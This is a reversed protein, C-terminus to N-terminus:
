SRSPAPMAQRAAPAHRRDAAHRDRPRARAGATGAFQVAGPLRPLQPSAPSRAPTPRACGATSTAAVIAGTPMRVRWSRALNAQYVDGAAIHELARRCADLYATPEDEEISRRPLGITPPRRSRASSIPPAAARSPEAGPEAVAVSRGTVHDHLLAARMRWAMAVIPLPSPPLRLTPEVEAALEYGLYLFWGGAFPWPAAAATRAKSRWWANLRECFREGLAPGRPRCRSGAHLREGPAALLLSFRGLPAAPRPATSCSPIVGPDRAHLALM